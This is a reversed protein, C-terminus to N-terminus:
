DSAKAGPAEIVKAPRSKELVTRCAPMSLLFDQGYNKTLVRPDLIVIIGHDPLAFSAEAMGIKPLTFTSVPLKALPAALGGKPNSAQSSPSQSPTQTAVYWWLYDLTWIDIGLKKALEVLIPNVAEYQDALSNESLNQPWLGLREMGEKLTNNLVGYRDPYVVHLIATLIAPGLWPGDRQERAPRLRDLRNKLPKSEDFLLALADRLRGM